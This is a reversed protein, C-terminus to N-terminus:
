LPDSGVATGTITVEYVGPLYINDIYDQSDASFTLKGDTEQGDFIGDFTLDSCSISSAGDGQLKVETCRYTVECREPTLEFETLTFVFEQGSFNDSEPTPKTQTTTTFTFPDLCPNIFDITSAASATAVTSYTSLPYTVFEVEVSYPQDILGILTGDSSSATFERTVENYSMPDGDMLANDYKAVFSLDGCLTHGVLPTTVVTFEDEPDFTFAISDITYTKKTYTPAQITM